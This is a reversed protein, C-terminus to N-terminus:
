KSTLTERVGVRVGVGYDHVAGGGLVRHAQPPPASNREKIEWEM